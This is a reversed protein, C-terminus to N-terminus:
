WSSTIVKEDREREKWPPELILILASERDRYGLDRSLSNTIDFPVVYYSRHTRNGPLHYTEAQLKLLNGSIRRNSNTYKQILWSNRTEQGKWSGTKM